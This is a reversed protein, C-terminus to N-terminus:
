YIPDKTGKQTFYFAKTIKRKVYVRYNEYFKQDNLFFYLNSSPNELDTTKLLHSAVWKQRSNNVQPQGSCFTYKWM